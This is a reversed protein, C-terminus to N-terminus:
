KLSDMFEDVQEVNNIERRERGTTVSLHNRKPIQRLLEADSLLPIRSGRKILLIEPYMDDYILPNISYRNFIYHRFKAFSEENTYTSRGPLIVPDIGIGKFDLLSLEESKNQMVEEYIKKFNGLSQKLTKQRYVTEYEYIRNVIEPFLCDCIFHAYHYLWGPGRVNYLCIM